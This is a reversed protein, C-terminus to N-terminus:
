LLITRKETIQAFFDPVSKRETGTLFSNWKLEFKSNKMKLYNGDFVSQPL